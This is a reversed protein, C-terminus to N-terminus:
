DQKELWYKNTKSILKYVSCINKDLWHLDDRSTVIIYNNNTECTNKYILEFEHTEVFMVDDILIIKNKEFRMITKWNTDDVSITPLTTNIMVDDSKKDLLLNIISTKGTGSDGKIFNLRRNLKEKFKIQKSIVEIIIGNNEKKM